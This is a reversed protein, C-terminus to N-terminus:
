NMVLCNNNNVSNNKNILFAGGWSGPVHSANQLSGVKPAANIKLPQHFIKVRSQPPTYDSNADVRSKVHAYKKSTTFSSNSTSLDSHRTKIIKSLLSLSLSSFMMKWVSPFHYVGVPGLGADETLWVSRFGSCWLVPLKRRDM